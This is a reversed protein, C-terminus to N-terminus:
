RTPGCRLAPSHRPAVREWQLVGRHRGSICLFDNDRATKTTEMNGREESFGDGNCGVFIIDRLSFIDQVNNNKLLPPKVEQCTYKNWRKHLNCQWVESGWIVTIAFVLGTPLRGLTIWMRIQCACFIKLKKKEAEPILRLRMGGEYGYEQRRM